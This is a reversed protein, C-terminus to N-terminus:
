LNEHKILNSYRIITKHEKVPTSLQLIPDCFQRDNHFDNTERIYPRGSFHFPLTIILHHFSLLTYRIDRTNTITDPHQSQDNRWNWGGYQQRHAFQNTHYPIRTMPYKPYKVENKSSKSKEQIDLLKMKEKLEEINSCSQLQIEIARNEKLGRIIYYKEAEEEMNIRSAIEKVRYFYEIHTEKSTKETKSLQLHIEAPNVQTGFERILNNKLEYFRKPISQSQIYTKVAGEVLKIIFLIKQKKPINFSDCTSEFNRIFTQIPIKLNYKQFFTQLDEFRIDNKIITIPQQLKEDADLNEEQKTKIENMTEM